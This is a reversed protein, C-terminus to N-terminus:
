HATVYRSLKSSDLEHQRMCRRPLQWRNCVVLWLAEPRDEVAAAAWSGCCGASTM